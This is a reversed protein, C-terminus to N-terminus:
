DKKFPIWETSTDKNRNDSNVIWDKRKLGSRLKGLIGNISQRIAASSVGYEESIERYSLRKHYRLELLIRQKEKLEMITCEIESLIIEPTLEGSYDYGELLDKMLNEPYEKSMNMTLIKDKHNWYGGAYKVPMIIKTLLESDPCDTDNLYHYYTKGKPMYGHDDAWLNMEKITSDHTEYAGSHIATIIKHPHHYTSIMDGDTYVSSTVPFGIEVDLNKMDSNNFCVFPEGTPLENISELYQKIQSFSSEAFGSFEKNFDITRRITLTYFGPQKLLLIKSIRAMAYVGESDQSRM